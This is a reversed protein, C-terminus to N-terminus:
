MGLNAREAGRPQLEGQGSFRPSALGITSTATRQASHGPARTSM